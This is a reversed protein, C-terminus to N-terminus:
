LKPLLTAELYNDKMIEQAIITIDELTVQEVFPVKAKVVLAIPTKKLNKKMSFLKM